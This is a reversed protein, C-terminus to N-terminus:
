WFFPSDLVLFGRILLAPWWLRSQRQGQDNRKKAAYNQQTTFLSQASEDTRDICIVRRCSSCVKPTDGDVDNLVMRHDSRSKTGEAYNVCAVVRAITKVPKLLCM